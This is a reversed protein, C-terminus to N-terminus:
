FGGYGGMGGFNQSNQPGWSNYMQQQPLGGFNNYMGQQQPYQRGLGMGMQMNQVNNLLGAVGGLNGYNGAMPNGMGFGNGQFQNGFMNPSFGGGQNFQGFGGQQGQGQQQGGGGFLSQIFSQVQPNQMLQQFQNIPQQQNTQQPPQGPAQGQSQGQGAVRQQAQQQTEGALAPVYGPQTRPDVNAPNMTQSDPKWGPTTVDQNGLMKNYQTPDFVGNQNTTAWANNFQDQTFAPSQGNNSQWAQTNQNLNKIYSPTTFVNSDTSPGGFGPATPSTVPPTSTPTPTPTPTITNTQPNTQPNSGTAGPNNALFKQWYAMSDSANSVAPNFGGGAGGGYLPNVPSTQSSSQNPNGQNLNPTALTQNSFGTGNNPAIGIARNDAGAIPGDTQPNIAPGTGPNRGGDGMAM